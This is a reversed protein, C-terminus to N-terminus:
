ETRGDEDFRWRPSGTRHGTSEGRRSWGRALRRALAEYDSTVDDWRYHEAVRAKAAAACGDCREPDAEADEISRAVSKPDDFFWGRDALVERNFVVDYASVAAGAGMARLLSPNTGGVSHGHLYLRANGYLQDLQGQDWVSGLLVVRPDGEAMSRIQATYEDSYPAGGVVVLPLAAGSDVYGRVIMAVHNEPEFRAVVLHYRGPELGLEPLREAGLHEFATAGYAILDTSAALEERYYDAIGSSDAILADAWRVALAEASRYYRQGVGSWKSRRWELGDVHVAVPSGALHVLPLFVSNAANFLFTVDQDRRVLLHLASLASHSLTEIAKSRLAPLTVLQMGLHTDPITAGDVPQRCYVTVRHGRAALRSGIEEIATEFGGYRAPVGRTGMMCIRLPRHTEVADV